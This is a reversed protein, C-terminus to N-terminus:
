KTFLGHLFLSIPVPLDPISVLLDPMSVLLDPISLVKLLAQHRFHLSGLAWGAIRAAIFFLNFNAM